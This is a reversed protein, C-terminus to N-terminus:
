EIDKYYTFRNKGARKSEYMAIDAYSLLKDASNSDEPTLAIGISLTVYLEYGKYRIVKSSEKIIKSLLKELTEKDKIDNVILIFEDGGLRILYDIDRIINSVRKTIEKLVEDGGDHGFNDNIAKFGDMDIFCVASIDGNKNSNIIAKNIKKKLIHRNPLGTLVDFHALKELQKIVKRKETLITGIFLVLLIHILIYFDLNIIQYFNESKSIYFLSNPIKTSYMSVITIIFTSLFSYFMNRHVTIYMVIPLTISLIISINMKTLNIELFYVLTAIFIVIELTDKLRIEDKYRYFYLILPTLQLQGMFNGFWWSFVNLLFDTRDTVGFMVLSINGLLASFPQLLFFILIILGNIDRTSDLRISLKYHYFLKYGIIAEISNITSIFFSAEFNLGSSLALLLQGIFIGPWVDKGYILVSALAVGESLFIVNTVISSNVMIYFSFKGLIFYLLGIIFITSIYILSNKSNNRFKSYFPM